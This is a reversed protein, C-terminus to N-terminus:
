RPHGVIESAVLKACDIAAREGAAICLKGGTAEAMVRFLRETDRASYGREELGLAEVLYVIGNRLSRGLRRFGGGGSRKSALHISYVRTESRRALEILRHVSVTTPYFQEHAIVVMTRPPPAARLRVLGAEMVERMPTRPRVVVLDRNAGSVSFGHQLVPEADFRALQLGHCSGVVARLEAVIENAAQGPWGSGGDAVLIVPALPEECEIGHQEIASRFNIGLGEPSRSTFLMALLIAIM